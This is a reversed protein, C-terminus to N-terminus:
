CLTLTLSLTTLSLPLTLSLNARVVLTKPNPCANSTILCTAIYFGEKEMRDTLVVLEEPECDGADGDSVIFLLVGAYKYAAVERRV